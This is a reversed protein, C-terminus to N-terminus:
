QWGQCLTTRAVKKKSLAALLSEDYDDLAPAQAHEFHMERPRRCKNMLLRFM